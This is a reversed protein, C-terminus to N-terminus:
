KKLLYRRDDFSCVWGPCFVVLLTIAMGSLWAEAFSLLLFYPLYEDLLVHPASGGLWLVLTAASGVALMCVAALACANAFIFVFIHTPLRAQLQRNCFDSLYAPLVGLLAYNIPWSLLEGSTGITAALSGLAVALLARARGFTLVLVTVGLLHLRYGPALDAKLSWLLMLVVSAGLLRGLQVGNALDRWGVRQSEYWLVALVLAASIWVLEAPLSAISFDM